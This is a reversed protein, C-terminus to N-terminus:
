TRPPTRPLPGFSIVEARRAHEPARASCTLRAAPGASLRLVLDHHRGDHEVVARHLGPEGARTLSHVTVAGRRDEGLAEAALAEAVQVLVPRGVRGRHHRRDLRGARWTDVVEAANGADLGGIMDGAPLLLVNGAFRCGGLHTSEWVDLGPRAALAAAVPRGRVACCVDRSGHTCVLAVEQPGTGRATGPAVAALPDVLALDRDARWTGWLV